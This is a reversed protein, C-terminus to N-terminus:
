GGRACSNWRVSPGVSYDTGFGREDRVMADLRVQARPLSYSISANAQSFTHRGLGLRTESQGDYYDQYDQGIDGPRTPVVPVEPVIRGDERAVEIHRIDVNYSFRSNRTSGVQFLAGYAGDSAGEAALRITMASALYYGGIQALGVKDTAMVSVDAALTNNLRRAAGAQIIPIGTPTLFGGDFDRTMVGGYAFYVDQNQSPILPNKTFFRKESRTGGGADRVVLTVEYSGNPLANTDLSQNGGEYIASTLIRGDRVIDVQSRQSLFVVLPNGRLSEKDRRTDIQSEIGVGLLKRRSVMDTGPMWFAGALQWWGRKDIELALTDAQVGFDNAYSLNARLRRNADGIMMRDYVSARLSSGSSGSMVANINNVMTLGGAPQAIYKQRDGEDIGLLAPNVFIDARLRNQDLIIGATEPSLNGCIAPDSGPMCILEPHTALKPRMLASRVSARDAVNPLMAVVADPDAFTATGPSVTVVSQGLKRCAFFIDVLIRQEDLLSSFGAPEAVHIAVRRVSDDDHAIGPLAM